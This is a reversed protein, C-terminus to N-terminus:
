KRGTLIFNFAFGHSRATCDEVERILLDNEFESVTGRDGHFDYVRGGRLWFMPPEDLQSPREKVKWAEQTVM